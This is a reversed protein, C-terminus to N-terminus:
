FFERELFHNRLLSLELRYSPSFLVILVNFAVQLRAEQAPEVRRLQIRRNRSGCLGAVQKSKGNELFTSCSPFSHMALVRLRDLLVFPDQTM